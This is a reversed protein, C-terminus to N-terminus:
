IPATLALPPRTRYRRAVWPWRSWTPATTGTRASSFTGNAAITSPSGNITLQTIAKPNSVRGLLKSKGVGRVVATKRGRMAVFSPELIEMEGPAGAM